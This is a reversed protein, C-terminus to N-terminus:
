KGPIEAPHVPLLVNFLTPSNCLTYLTGCTQQQKAAHLPELDWDQSLNLAMTNERTTKKRASENISNGFLLFGCKVCVCM